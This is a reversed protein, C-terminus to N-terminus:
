QISARIPKGPFAGEIAKGGDVVLTGNVLVFKMGTAAVAPKEYTAVDRVTAPDFVVIDADAGPQLRGKAKMMPVRREMRKAPQYTMKDLAEMWTLSKEERVYQRLVKTFTGASRPHGNATIDFGDSAIMTLPSVIAKRVNAESNSHIIVTGREKRYQIFTERTLREGTAVWQLKSFDVDKRTLYDDFLASEIRTAGATYPNAETTVDVGRAQAETIMQLTHDIAGQSSSNIHVVHLPAGTIASAALVESLGRVPADENVNLSSSGRM